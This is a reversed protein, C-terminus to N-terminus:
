VRVAQDLTSRELWNLGVCRRMVTTCDNENKATSIRLVLNEYDVALFIYLLCTSTLNVLLLYKFWPSFM